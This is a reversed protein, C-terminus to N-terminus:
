ADTSGGHARRFGDRARAILSEAAKESRGITAAVERVSMGDLFRLLLVMRQDVPLQALAAEVAHRAEAARWPTDETGPERHVLRDQRRAERVHRRHHDVLRSRAIAILWTVVDSRGDFRHRHRIAQFFTQQTLEEVLDQDGACRAALYRYVRPMTADYWDRFRVEDGVIAALDGGTAIAMPVTM